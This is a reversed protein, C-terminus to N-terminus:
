NLPLFYDYSKLIVIHEIIELNLTQHYHTLADTNDENLVTLFTYSYLKQIVKLSSDLVAVFM